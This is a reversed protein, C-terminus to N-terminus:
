CNMLVIPVESTEFPLEVPRHFSSAFIIGDVRRELMAEFAAATIDTEYGSNIVLMVKGVAWLTEQAGRIMDVAHPTIIVEDSVLGFGVLESTNTRMQRATFSPRYDLAEIVGCVKERNEDSVSPHKNLVRSVTGRSVGAIRAIDEITYKQPM